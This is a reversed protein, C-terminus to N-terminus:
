LAGHYNYWVWYGLRKQSYGLSIDREVFLLWLKKYTVEM